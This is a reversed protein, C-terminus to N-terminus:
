NWKQPVTELKGTDYGLDAILKVLKRYQPEPIQPERAMIWVYDRKERGIITVRYQEDLYVVRYDAKFPWIFQMGWIANSGDDEVYGVPRMVKKEGDGDQKYYSFTTQIKGSEILDYREIANYINKEFITPISAIVYWDGMFRPLDVKAVAPMPAPTSCATLMLIVPILFFSTTTKM